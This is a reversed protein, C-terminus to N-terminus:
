NIIDILDIVYNTNIICYNSRGFPVSTIKLTQEQYDKIDRNLTRM